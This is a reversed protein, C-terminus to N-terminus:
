ANIGKMYELFQKFVNPNVHGIASPCNGTVEMVIMSGNPYTFFVLSTVEDNISASQNYKFVFARIKNMNNFEIVTIGEANAKEKFQDITVDCQTVPHDISSNIDAKSKITFMLVIIVVFFLGISSMFIKYFM